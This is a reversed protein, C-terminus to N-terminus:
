TSQPIIIANKCTRTQQLISRHNSTARSTCEEDATDPLKTHQNRSRTLMAHRVNNKEEGHVNRVSDRARGM